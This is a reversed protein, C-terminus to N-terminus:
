SVTLTKAPSASAGFAASAPRFVRYTFTGSASGHIVFKYGSASSLTQSSITVWGTGSKRQLYVTSGGLAPTVTGSLTATKGKKISAPTLTAGIQVLCTVTATASAAGGYIGAATVALRVHVSFRATMRLTVTGSQSTRVGNGAPQYAAGSGHARYQLLVVLGAVPTKTGAKTVTGTVTIASGYTVPTPASTIVVSTPIRPTVPASAPSPPGTGAANRAQVSFTYPVGNALGTVKESLKPGFAIATQRVGNRFPTLTYGTVPSGGDSVPAIWSVSASANGATAAPQGPAGPVGAQYTYRDQAVAASTGGATTVRVGVTGAGGPPVTVACSTATCTALTDNLGFTVIGGTLDTGTVIVPNGGAAPGSSPSVARVAPAPPPPELYTFEDAPVVPSTGGATTVRVDTTGAQGPPTTATCSTAGCAATAATAGFGVTGGSLNTGTINVQDGGTVAGTAPSVGTIAPPDPPRPGYHFVGAPGAATTGHPTTVTIDVAGTGAPVTATVHAADLVTVGTASATGFTVATAGTLNAGTITVTSGGAPPGYGPSVFTVAPSVGTTTGTVHIMANGGTETAWVSGDASMALYKPGAGSFGGPLPYDQVTGTAPDLASVQDLGAQTFWLRGDPGATVGVATGDSSPLQYQTVVGSATMADLEHAAQDAFWIRGDPGVAIGWPSVGSGPVPYETVKGNTTIAGVADGFGETFWLRGDAGAALNLPFGSTDPVPYLSIQGGATMAGVAGSRALTFWLRGDPGVTIDRIDDPQGPVQFSTQQGGPALSIIKNPSSETYWTTGDPTQTIGDPQSSTDPTAFVTMTGDPAIKAVKDLSPMTFWTTGDPAAYVHGGGAQDGDALGPIAPQSVSVPSIVFEDAASAASTGGATQVTVDVTGASGAPETATCSTASCASDAAAAPGFGVTGGTLDTGTVTVFTGGSAPGVAPSVGTVAPVPPIQYSFQDLPTVASTGGSTVVQVDVTGATGPPSVASCSTAQCSSDGAANGGFEVQGNTLNTGTVLVPTGGAAIGSVPTVGSVAPVGPPQYTFRDAAGAPSTGTPTTVTVDAPGDSGSPSIATCSTDTCSASSASVGGFSVTGGDLHTGTVVVQDGGQDTGSGPSVGTVAPPPLVQYSFRDAPVAPTQAIGDAVDVTVDVPGPSGVAPAPGTCTIDTCQFGPAPTDGFTVTGGSLLTGTITVPTGGATWGTSPSVSTISPLQYTYRDAPTAPTVGASTRVSVDVTGTRVGFPVTVDCEGATCPDLGFAQVSGFYVVGNSLNQGIVTVDDAGTLWGNDPEVATISPAGPRLYSFTGPTSSSGDARTVVVAAPGATGPPTLVTCATLSCGNLSNDQAAQGGVAVTAGALNTGFIAISTGGATSGRDPEISTIAPAPARVYSFRDATVHASVEAGDIVEVDVAGVTATAPTTASCRTPTCTASTDIGGDSFSVTGDNLNTGTITIPTGGTDPGSRPAVSTIVPAGNVYTFRDAPTVASAGAGTFVTVDVTSGGSPATAMIHSDDLVTFSPATTGGFDVATTGTFGTGTITVQDGGSVNGTKPTIATVAPKPPPPAAPQYGFLDAASAPSTGGPGSVTVHVTDTSASPPATATCMTDTCDWAQAITPGFFVAADRLGAGFVAVSTGGAVSGTAPFIRTVAPVSPPQYTLRSAPIAASPGGPGAATVGVTGTGPPVTVDCQTAECTLNAGLGSDPTSRGFSIGTVSALSSGYVTLDTGGSVPATSASLGTVVPRQQSITQAAWAALADLSAAIGAYDQPPALLDQSGDGSSLQSADAGLLADAIQQQDGPSEGLATMIAALDPPLGTVLTSMLSTVDDQTVPYSPPLLAAFAAQATGYDAALARLSAAAGAAFRAMAQRQVRYWYVSGANGAGWARDASIAMGQIGAIASAFDTELAAAAAQQQATFGTPLPLVPPPVPDAVQQYNYDPPDNVADNFLWNQLVDSYGDVAKVFDIFKVCPGCVYEKVIYKAYGAALKKALDTTDATKHILPCKITPPARYPTSSLIDVAINDREDYGGALGVDQVTVDATYEGEGTYNFEGATLLVHFVQVRAHAQPTGFHDDLSGFGGSWNATAYPGTPEVGPQTLFTAVIKVPLVPRSSGCASTAFQSGITVSDIIVIEGGFTVKARAAQGVGGGLIGALLAASAALVIATTRVARLV